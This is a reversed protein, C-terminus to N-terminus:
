LREVKYLVPILFLFLVNDTELHHTLLFLGSILIRSHRHFVDKPIGIWLALLRIYGAWHSNLPLSDFWFCSRDLFDNYVSAIFQFRLNLIVKGLLM